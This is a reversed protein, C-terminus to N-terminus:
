SKSQRSFIKKFWSSSFGIGNRYQQNDMIEDVYQELYADM